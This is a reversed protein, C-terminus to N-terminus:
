NNGDNKAKKDPFLFVSALVAGYITSFFPNSQIPCHGSACGIFYYYAYGGIAGIVPLIIKKYKTFFTM